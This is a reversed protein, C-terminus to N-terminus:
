IRNSRRVCRSPSQRPRRIDTLHIIHFGFDTEVVDSIDGKNLGFVADEFPKVM